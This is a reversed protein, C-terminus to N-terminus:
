SDSSLISRAYGDLMRGVEDLSAELSETHGYGLDRALILYYRTEELSGQATNMFRAKDPRGRKKFGEAINAAISVAARRMQSVLGYTETKPFEGTLRYVELVVQHAKQWVLLEQFTRAPARLAGSMHGRRVGAEQRRDETEQRRDGEEQRRDGTKQRRGGAEQRRGRKARFL